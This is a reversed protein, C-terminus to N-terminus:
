RIGRESRPSSLGSASVFQQRCRARLRPLAYVVLPIKYSECQNHPSILVIKSRTRRRRYSRAARTLVSETRMRSVLQERNRPCGVCAEGPCLEGSRFTEDFLDAPLLREDPEAGEICSAILVSLQRMGRATPHTGDVAEYDIGFAELDAVNCGHERAAARIADNYSKFPAGRLNWAFTPSPCGAVRGPCLTCCWVEAQPYAARMRELLLGYAARFRDIAGPAAAAPAHPEIADLDLAVPVANGRGAAQATAGGWGYDNIGMFVIVVDPQVGDEALADIREQSNGAPFGAGEVLSGSFSSNALLRGGLREIVQSWWTDASSTVGTQECREGQYYVAFGDPNCGDFTSISDGLISFSRM